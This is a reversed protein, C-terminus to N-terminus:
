SAGMGSVTRLMGSGIGFAQGNSSAALTAARRPTWRCPRPATRSRSRGRRGAAYRCRRPPRACWRPGGRRDGRQGAQGGAQEGEAVVHVPQALHRVVHGVPLHQGAEDALRQGAHGVGEAGVGAEAGVVVGPQAGEQVAEAELVLERGARVVVRGAAEVGRQQAHGLAMVLDDGGDQGGQPPLALGGVRGEQGDVGAGPPDHLDAHVLHVGCGAGDGPLVRRVAVRWSVGTVPPAQLSCHFASQAM